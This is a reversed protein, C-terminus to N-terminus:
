VRQFHGRGDKRIFESKQKGICCAFVIIAIHVLGIFVAAIGVFHINTNLIEEVKNACGLEFLERKKEVCGGEEEKCCSEPVKVGWDTSNAVGCCKLEQQVHDWAATVDKHKEKGYYDMTDLMAQSIHASLFYAAVGACIEAILIVVIIIAYTYIMCKNECLAGCCGFFAIVFIIVGIIILIIPTNILSDTLFETFNEEVIQLYAGLGILALGSVAVLLNLVFLIYKIISGCCNEM